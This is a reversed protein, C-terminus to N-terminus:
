DSRAVQAAARGHEWFGTRRITSAYACAGGRDKGGSSGAARAALGSRTARRIEHRLEGPYSHGHVRCATALAWVDRHCLGASHGSVEAGSERLESESWAGAAMQDAKTGRDRVTCVFDSFIWEVRCERRRWAGCAVGDHSDAAGFTGSADAARRLWSTCGVRERDDMGGHGIEGSWAGGVAGPMGGGM